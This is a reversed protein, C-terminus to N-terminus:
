TCSLRSAAPALVAQLAEGDAVVQDALGDAVQDVLAVLRDQRRVDPAVAIRFAHALAGRPLHLVGRPGGGLKPTFVTVPKM